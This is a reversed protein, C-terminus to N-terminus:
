ASGVTARRWRGRAPTPGARRTSTPTRVVAGRVAHHRRDRGSATAETYVRPVGLLDEPWPVPSAALPQGRTSCCPSSSSVPPVAWCLGAAQAPQASVRISGMWAAIKWARSAARAEARGGEARRAALRRRGEPRQDDFRAVAASFRGQAHVVARMVDGVRSHMRVSGLDGVGHAREVQRLVGSVSM